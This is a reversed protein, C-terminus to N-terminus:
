PKNRIAFINLQLDMGLQTKKELLPKKSCFQTHIYFRFNFKTLTSLLDGLKQKEEIFSHYEIFLQDVNGLNQSGCLVDTEAGEIDMKLFDIKRDILCDLSITDIKYTQRSENMKHTRGGDAGESYFSITGKKNSIAKNLINVDSYRNNVNKKLIKFITPDAEIGTIVANPYISKFYLISAGYNSGCDLIVPNDKVCQFKYIEDMFIERHSWYFSASDAIEFPAGALNVTFKQYRKKLLLYEFGSFPLKVGKLGIKKFLSFVINKIM